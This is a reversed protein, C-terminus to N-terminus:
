IIKNIISNTDSKLQYKKLWYIRHVIPIVIKKDM